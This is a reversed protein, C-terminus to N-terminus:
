GQQVAQIFLSGSMVLTEKNALLIRKGAKAAAMAPKLGAAGVIAAMVTDVSALTSASVLAEPGYQVDTKINAARLLNQLTQAANASGVVALEPKFEICQQALVEVNSHATLAAIKFLQPHARVVQLTNVGISGTSGLVCIHRM